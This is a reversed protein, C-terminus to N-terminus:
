DTLREMLSRAEQQQQESGEDVM